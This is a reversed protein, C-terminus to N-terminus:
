LFFVPPPATAARITAMNGFGPWGTPNVSQGKVLTM